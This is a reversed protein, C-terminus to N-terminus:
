KLTLIYAGTSFGYGQAVITYTGTEPLFFSEILSNYNGGSDDDKILMEGAPSILMLYTDLGSNDEEMLISVYQGANGFFNWEYIVGARVIGRVTEGYVIEGEYNPEDAGVSEALIDEPQLEFTPDLINALQLTELAEEDQGMSAYYLGDVIIDVVQDQILGEIINPDGRELLKQAMEVEPTFGIGPDIEKAQRWYALAQDFLSKDTLEQGLDHLLVAVEMSTSPNFKFAQRFATLSEEYKDLIYLKVGLDILFYAEDEHLTPDIEIARQVVDLARDYEGEDFFQYGLEILLAAIDTKFTSDYILVDSFVEMANKYNVALIYKYGLKILHNVAEKKLTSDLEIAKNFAERADELKDQRLYERGRALEVEAMPDLGSAPDLENADNLFRFAEGYQGQDCFARGQDILISVVEETPNINLSPDLEIIDSYAEFAKVLQGQRANEQGQILLLLVDAEPV